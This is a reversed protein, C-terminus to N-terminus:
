KRATDASSDNPLRLASRPIEAGQIYEGDVALYNVILYDGGRQRVVIGTVICSHWVGRASKFRGDMGMLDSLAFQKSLRLFREKYDTGELWVLLRRVLSLHRRSPLRRIKPAAEDITDNETKM